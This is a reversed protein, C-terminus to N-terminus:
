LFGMRMGRITAGWNYVFSKQKPIEQCTTAFNTLYLCKPDNNRKSSPCNKLLEVYLCHLVKYSLPSCGQPGTANVQTREPKLCEGIATQVIPQWIDRDNVRNRLTENLLVAQDITNNSSINRAEFMCQAVCENDPPDDYFWDARSKLNVQCNYLTEEAFIM